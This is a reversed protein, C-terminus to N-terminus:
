KSKKETEKYTKGYEKCLQKSTEPDLYKRYSKGSKKSVKNIFAKGNANLYITDQTGQGYTYETKFTQSTRASREKVPIFKGQANASCIVSMALAAIIFLKKM